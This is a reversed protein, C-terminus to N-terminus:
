NVSIHNASLRKRPALLTCVSTMGEQEQILGQKMFETLTASALQTILMVLPFEFTDHQLILLEVNQILALINGSGETQGSDAAMEREEGYSEGVEPYLDSEAGVWRRSGM